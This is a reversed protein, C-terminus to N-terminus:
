GGFVSGGVGRGADRQTEKLIRRAQARVIKPDLGKPFGTKLAGKDPNSVLDVVEDLTATPDGKLVQKVWYAAKHATTRETATRTRSSGRSSGSGKSAANKDALANDHEIDQKRLRYAKKADKRERKTDAEDIARQADALQAQQARDANQDAVSAQAQYKDLGFAQQELLNRRESDRLERRANVKFAGQDKKLSLRKERIARARASEKFLESNRSGVAIRSRDALYANQVAGERATGATFNTTTQQRAASAQAARQEAGPDSHTGQISAQQAAQDSIARRNSEDQTTATFASQQIQSVAKDYGAQSAQRAVELQRQYEGYWDTINKQQQGSVALEDGIAKDADGYALRTQSNIEKRVQKKSSIPATLSFPEKKSARKRQPKNAKPKKTKDKAM